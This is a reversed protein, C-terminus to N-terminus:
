SKYIPNKLIKGKLEQVWAAKLQPDQLIKGVIKCGHGAPNSYLPRVVLTIQSSLAELSSSNAVVGALFGIREGYLGMNKGFSQSVFMELGQSAFYRVAWVDEDLDGTAFGQYACDFFPFLGRQKVLHCIAKWQDRTPDMGTPNHAAPHLIVVSGAPAKELTAMMAGFDFDQREENWYPYPKVHHFGAAVFIDRHNMWTPNSYYAHSLGIKNKLFEAGVRLPGTGGISQYCFSRGEKIVQHDAGFLLEMAAQNIKPYGLSPLYGHSTNPDSALDQEVKRVVDYM